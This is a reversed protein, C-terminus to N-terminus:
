AAAELLRDCLFFVQDLIELPSRHALLLV